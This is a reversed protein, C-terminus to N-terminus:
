KSFADGLQLIKYIFIIRSRCYQIIDELLKYHEFIHLFLITGALPM